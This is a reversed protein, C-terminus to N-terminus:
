IELAMELKEPIETKEKKCIEDNLALTTGSVIWPSLPTQQVSTLSFGGTKIPSCTIIMNNCTTKGANQRAITTSYKSHRGNHGIQKLGLM